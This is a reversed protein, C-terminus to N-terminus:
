VMWWLYDSFPEKVCPTYIKHLFRSFFFTCSSRLMNKHKLLHTAAGLRIKINRLSRTLAESLYWHVVAKPLFYAATEAYKTRFGHLQYKKWASFQTAAELFIEINKFFTRSSKFSILSRSSTFSFIHKRSIIDMYSINQLSFLNFYFCLPFMNKM